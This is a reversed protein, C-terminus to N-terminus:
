EGKYPPRRYQGNQRTKEDYDIAFTPCAHLCRFCMTCERATWAPKGNKMEIAKCPCDRACLGCGICDENVRLHSTQRAKKYYYRAGMCVFLPKKDKQIFVRRKQKIGVLVEALQRAEEQLTRAIEEQDNVPFLVTWNDVTKVAYSASLRAGGKKLLRKLFYDAQGTTTGYTIVAYIYSGEGNNIRARQFFEEVYSPLGWFYTPVVIGLPEGERLAIGDLETMSRAVDKTDRAIKEAIYRCNGTASFYVIM